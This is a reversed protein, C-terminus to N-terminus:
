TVLELQVLPAADGKRLGIKVIRTYGGPREAYRPGIVAFLKDVVHVDYVFALARRRSHLDGKKGLTIIREAMSKAEKAKPETTRIKEHRLLDTVLNRYLAMRHGTHRSLKRGDIGHRM